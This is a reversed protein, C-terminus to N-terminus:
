GPIANMKGRIGWEPSTDAYVRRADSWTRLAIAYKERLEEYDPVRKQIAGVTTPRPHPHGPQSNM